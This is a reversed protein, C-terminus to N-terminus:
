PHLDVALIVVNNNNPLTLSAVTKASNIAFSYGYLYLPGPSEAGSAAVRYAMTLVTSEGAYGQPTFWDSLSQTFTSTTGDTYTVVFSQSTQDGNVATGLLNLTAYSGAPLTIKANTLANETGSAGFSFTSGSWTLSTGILNAAYSNGQGDIGLGGPVATGLTVLGYLDDSSTLNVSVPTSPTSITYTASAVASNTYGSAVAIAKITTTASVTPPSSASYLTAATTPTTGNTTYYIAAGATTDAM